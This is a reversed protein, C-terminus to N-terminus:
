GNVKEVEVPVFMVAIPRKGGYDYYIGDFHKSVEKFFDDWSRNGDLIKQISQFANKNTRELQEKDEKYAEICEQVDLVKAGDVTGRYLFKNGQTVQRETRALDMYYFVRPFTSQKYDNNSYFKRRNITEKPDLIATDGLDKGTYHYVETQGTLTLKSM